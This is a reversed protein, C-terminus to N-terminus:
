SQGSATASHPYKREDLPNVKVTQYERQRDLFQDPRIPEEARGFREFNPGYADRVPQESNGGADEERECICSPRCLATHRGLMEPRLSCREDFRVPSAAGHLQQFAIVSLLTPITRAYDRYKNRDRGRGSTSWVQNSTTSGDPRGKQVRISSHSPQRYRRSDPAM